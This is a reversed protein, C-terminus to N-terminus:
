IENTIQKSFFENLDQEEKLDTIWQIESRILKAPIGGILSFSPYLTYNKNCLSNSTIITDNRIITGAMVSTRSGIWCKNGISINATHPRIDETKLNRIYHFNTDIVQVEWGFRVNNGIVIKSNCIIRTNHNSTFDEGLFLTANSKIVISIGCGLNAKGAFILSGKIDILNYSNRPLFEKDGSFGITIMGTSIEGKIQIHGKLSRIKTYKSVIIPIHIASKFPLSIFNLYISKFIGVRFFRNLNLYRIKANIKFLNNM